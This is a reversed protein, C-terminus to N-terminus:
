NAVDCNEKSLQLNIRASTALQFNKNAILKDSFDSSYLLTRNKRKAHSSPIPLNACLTEYCARGCLLYIFTSFNRNIDNYRFGNPKRGFNSEATEIFTKLIQSFNCMKFQLSDKSQSERLMEIQNPLQLLYSKHGPKFKFVNVDQYSTNELATLNDNVYNEIETITENNICM